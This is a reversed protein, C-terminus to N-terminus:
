NCADLSKQCDDKGWTPYISTLPVFKEYKDMAATFLPKAAAKGGGYFDPTKLLIAGLLYDARPNQPNLGQARKLAATAQGVYQVGRTEPDVIMRACAIFGELVYNESENAKLKSAEQLMSEAYDLILDIKETENTRFSQIVSAYAAYYYPLWQNKEAKAIREFQNAVENYDAPSAARKMQELSQAMAENYSKEDAYMATSFLLAMLLSLIKTKM